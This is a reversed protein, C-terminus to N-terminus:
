HFRTHIAWDHYQKLGSNMSFSPRYGYSLLKSIDALWNVPDGERTEGNFFYRVGPDFFGSFLSVVDSIYIEEGNAVNIIEADFTSHRAIIEIARVLDYIFIFDRSENGTGYLSFPVGKKIKKLLDWFLQKKLGPGY